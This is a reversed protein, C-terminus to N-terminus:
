FCHTMVAPIQSSIKCCYDADEPCMTHTQFIFIIRTFYRECVLEIQTQRVPMVGVIHSDSDIRQFVFSNIFYKIFGIDTLIIYMACQFVAKNMQLLAFPGLSVGVITSKHLCSDFHISQSPRPVNTSMRLANHMSSHQSNHIHQLRQETNFRFFNNM